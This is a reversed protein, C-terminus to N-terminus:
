EIGAITWTYDKYEKVQIRISAVERGTTPDVAQLLREGFGVDMLWRDEEEGLDFRYTGDMSIQLSTGTNNIVDIDPPDDVTWAYDTKETVDITESVIVTQTGHEKAEMLHEELTVDDIEITNKETISFRFDGDMYIDVTSGFDNTVLIDAEGNGDPSTPSKCGDTSLILGALLLVLGLIAPFNPREPHHGTWM